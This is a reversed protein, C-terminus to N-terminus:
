EKCLYMIVYGIHLGIRTVSKLVMGWCGCIFLFMGMRSLTIGFKISLPISVVFNIYMVEHRSVERLCMKNWAPGPCGVVREIECRYGVIVLCLPSTTPTVYRFDIEM